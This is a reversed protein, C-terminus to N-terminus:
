SDLFTKRLGEAFSTPQYGFRERVKELHFLTQPPRKAPQQFDLATVPLVLNQDLSLYQAVRQGMEFPSLTDNGSFHFVGTAQQQIIKEIGWVLDAVFTPRRKQDTFLKVTKGARLASAVFTLINARGAQPNGYILIPRVITWPGKYQQVSKEAEWKTLGYYNVPNAEDDETYQEATGSFIFDTSLHVFHPLSDAVALLLNETGTVNVKWAAEKNLECDDPKTMAACHVVVQPKHQDVTAAVEGRNTIDLSQYQFSPHDLHLRQAGLATAVVKYGSRLLKAALYHGVFGNAGTILVTNM